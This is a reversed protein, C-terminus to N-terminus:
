FVDSAAQDPNLPDPGYRNAGKTGPILALVCMAILIFVKLGNIIQISYDTVLSSPELAPASTNYIDLLISAIFVLLPTFILIAPWLPLNVDKLRRSGIVFQPWLLVLICFDLTNTFLGLTQMNGLHFLMRPVFIEVVVIVGYTLPVVLAYPVRSVRGKTSFFFSWFRFPRKTNGTM